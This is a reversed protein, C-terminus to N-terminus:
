EPKVGSAKIVKAWKATESKIYSAFAEPTGTAPEGGQALLKQEVDPQQFVRLTDANLRSVILPPTRAPVLLGLWNIAEFGPYGSEAVTPVDPAASSRKLSSVALARLKGSKMHPLAGLLSSFYINVQGSMVDIVAQGGGKYPVHTMNVHAMSKLLEAALHTSSGTGSSAFTLKGPQSRALAVLDKVSAPGSPHTVLINPYAVLFTVPLFDRLPDYPLRTYLTPNIALPGVNGMLITYGDPSASAVLSTGLNGAAGSRNDVVMPVGWGDSLKQALMRGVIDAAGGPVFPVVLRVPRSPFDAAVASGAAFATMALLQLLSTAVGSRGGPRRGQRRVSM